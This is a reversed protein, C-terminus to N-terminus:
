KVVCDTIIQQDLLCYSTEIKAIDQEVMSVWAEIGDGSKTGLFFVLNKQPVGIISVWAPKGWGYDVDYAGLRCWSTFGCVELTKRGEKFEPDNEENGSYYKLFADGDELRRVYDSNAKIITERLKIALDRYEVREGSDTTRIMAMARACANGFFRGPLPPSARSRIDVAHTAAFVTSNRNKGGCEILHRWIFASVAEVRTPKEMLPGTSAKRLAELKQKNFVFRKTVVKQPTEAVAEPPPLFYRSFDAPPFRVSLDFIPRPTITKAHERCATAWANVFTVLSMVDALRHSMCIGITTGGCGLFSLQVALQIDAGGFPSAPVYKKLEDIRPNEVIDSVRDDIFQAELYEAGEDNCDIWSNDILRGALPYYVSLADSLSQKLKRSITQPNSYQHYPQFYFIIHIYTPPALQDLFSLHHKGLHPPTPSSPKILQTAMEAYVVM